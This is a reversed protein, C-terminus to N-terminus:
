EQLAPEPKGTYYGQSYDIGLTKVKQYIDESHVYKAITKIHLKKAFSVITEVIVQSSVNSDIHKILSSNIKLYNVELRLIHELNSYGSGFDDIAIKCGHKKMERIFVHVTQFNEIVDCELIEFIIRKAIEPTNNFIGKIFDHFRKDLIDRISLNLSFEYSANKMAEISKKIMIETINEYLRTEKIVPLFSEPILIRSNEDIVRVLCEYNETIGNSNNVIPQFFVKVADRKIANELLNLTNLNKSINDHLNLDKKYELFLTGPNKKVYQLAMNAKELLPKEKSLGISVTIAIQYRDYIFTEKGIENIITKALVEPNYDLSNEFLIGFDDAGFRYIKANLKEPILVKLTEAFKQLIFDGAKIGYFDNIHKFNDINILLLVPEKLDNQNLYFSYVNFLGTQMDKTAAEELRLTREKIREELQENLRKLETEVQLLKQNQTILHEYTFLLLNLIQRHDATVSYNKGNYYFSFEKQGKEHSYHYPKSLISRIKFLLLKEDYPKTIYGDVQHSLSYIIEEPDSLVTLLIIPINRLTRDRKIERCLAYGDMRPMIIDSIILSPKQERAMQLGEIGDKAIRVLYGAQNLLHKLFESQTASDEIILIEKENNKHPTDFASTNGQYVNM